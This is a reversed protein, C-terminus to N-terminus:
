RPGGISHCNGCTNKFYTEIEQGLAAFNGFAVWGTVILASVPLWPLLMLFFWRTMERKAPDFTIAM